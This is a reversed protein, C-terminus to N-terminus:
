DGSATLKLRVVTERDEFVEVTECAPECGEAAYTVQWVGPRPLRIEGGGAYPGGGWARFWRKETLPPGGGVVRASVRVLVAFGFLDTEKGFSKPFEVEFRVRQRPAVVVRIGGTGPRVGEV